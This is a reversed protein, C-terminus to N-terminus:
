DDSGEQTMTADQRFFPVGGMAVCWQRVGCASTCLNNPNPIFLQRDRIKKSKAVWDWLMQDTYTDLDFWHDVGGSRAKWFGAWKASVGYTSRLCLNNLAMQLPWPATHSGSKLDVILLADDADVFVRDIISRVQLAPIPLHELREDSLAAEQDSDFRKAWVELEIGPVAEGETGPFEAIRLGSSERWASWREVFIPGNEAWWAADEKNPNAKSARGSRYYDEEAFSPNREQTEKLAEAWYARWM